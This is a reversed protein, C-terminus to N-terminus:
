KGSRKTAMVLVGCVTINENYGEVAGASKAEASFVDASGCSLPIIEAITYIEKAVAKKVPKDQQQSYETVETEVSIPLLFCNKLYEDLRPFFDDKALEYMSKHMALKVTTGTATIKDAISEAFPFRGVFESVKDRVARPTHEIAAFDLFVPANFACIQRILKKIEDACSKVVDLNEPACAVTVTVKGDTLEVRPFRVHSFKGNTKENIQTYIKNM